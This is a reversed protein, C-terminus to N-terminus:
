IEPDLHETLYNQILPISDLNNSPSGDPATHLYQHIELPFERGDYILFYRSGSRLIRNEAEPTPIQFNLADNCLHSIWTNWPEPGASRIRVHTVQFGELPGYFERARRGTALALTTIPLARLNNEPIDDQPTKLFRRAYLPVKEGEPTTFFYRGGRGLTNQIAEDRSISRLIPTFYLREIRGSENRKVGVIENEYTAKIFEIIERALWKPREAHISHGTRDIYIAKGPNSVMLPAIKKVGGFIDFGTIRDTTDDAGGILLTRITSREYCKRGRSAAIEDQHSFLLQEYAVRWHTRRRAPSYVEQLSLLFIQNATTQDYGARCEARVWEDSQKVAITNAGHFSVGPIVDPIGAEGIIVGPIVPGLLGSVLPGALPGVIPIFNFIGGLLPQLTFEIFRYMVEFEPTGDNILREGNLQIGIFDARSDTSEEHTCRQHARELAEKGIPDFEEGPSPIFYDKNGFSEYISAPSWSVCNQIWWPHTVLRESLRLALNGGMSGGLVAAIRPLISKQGDAILDRDINEILSVVLQEYVELIGFRREEPHDPVYRTTSTFPALEEHDYYQSYGNSPFDFSIMVIPKALLQTEAAIKLEEFLGAGESLGSSHGHLFVLVLAEPPLIPPKKTPPVNDISFSTPRDTAGAIAYRIRINHTFGHMSFPIYTDAEPWHTGPLNTPRRAQDVASNVAIWGLTPRLSEKIPSPGNLAWVVQVAREVMSDVALRVEDGSLSVTIEAGLRSANSELSAQISGKLTNISITEEPTGPNLTISELFNEYNRHGSVALDAIAPALDPNTDGGFGFPVRAHGDFILKFVTAAALTDVANGWTVLSFDSLSHNLKGFPEVLTSRQNENPLYIGLDAINGIRPCPEIINTQHVSVIEM